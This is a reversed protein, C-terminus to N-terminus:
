VLVRIIDGAAAAADRARGVVVGTTLPVVCGVLDSEVEQGVAVIAGAEVLLEGRAAVGAQEGVDFGAVAVGLAPEGVDCVGGTFGVLRFRSLVATALVTLTLLIKETKM